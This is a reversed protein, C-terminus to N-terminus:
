PMRIKQLWQKQYQFCSNRKSELVIQKLTLWKCIQHLSYNIKRLWVWLNVFEGRRVRKGLAKFSPSFRSIILLLVDWLFLLYTCQWSFIQPWQPWSSMNSTASALNQIEDLKSLNQNLIKTTKPKSTTQGWRGWRGRFGWHPPNENM